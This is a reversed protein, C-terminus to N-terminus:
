DIIFRVIAVMTVSLIFFYLFGFNGSKGNLDISINNSKNKFYIIFSVIWIPFFYFVVVILCHIYVPLMTSYFMSKFAYFFEFRSINLIFESLFFILMGGLVNGLLGYILFYGNVKHKNKTVCIFCYHKFYQGSHLVYFIQCVDCWLCLGCDNKVEIFPLKLFNKTDM